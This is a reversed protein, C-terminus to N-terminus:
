VPKKINKGRFNYTVSHCNPCLIELNNIENNYSDGDIHHLEFVIDSGLWNTISCNKCKKEKLNNNFLLTKVKNSQYPSGTIYTSNKCLINSLDTKLYSHKMGKRWGKNLFHSVDIDMTRLRALMIKYNGGSAKLGLRLMVDRVSRSEKVIPTLSEKTHKTYTRKM